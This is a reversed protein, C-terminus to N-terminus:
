RTSFRFATTSRYPTGPRVVSSPFNPKNPSDPFKQTEVCFGAYRPYNVGGTGTISGDLNVATYLQMGPETTWVELVRGTTKEHVRAARGLHGGGHDLVYNHDYGPRSLGTAAHREGITHPRTFDLPTGQVSALEGTPILTADVPTYRSAFIEVEHDLVTGSGALNFYSHNTLNVVTPKDTAAAYDIRLEDGETLTYIVSCELRGPYGEEGDASTYTFEVATGGSVGAVPRGAWVRKDFGRAGGHLTHAGHNKTIPYTAGDLVFQANAIRNAFRGTIAGFFPHGQLYRELNDFGLAVNGSRGQRDRVLLDTIIGGYEAIRVRTGRANTLTFLRVPTGDPLQGFHSQELSM